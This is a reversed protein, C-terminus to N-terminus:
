VAVVTMASERGAPDVVVYRLTLPLPHSADPAPTGQWALATGDLEIDPGSSVIIGGNWQEWIRLRYSGIARPASPTAPASLAAAATGATAVVSGVAGDLTPIPLPPLHIASAPASVASFARPNDASQSPLVPAVGGAPPLEVVGRALRREPPMRVEAWYSYRIYSALATPDAVEAVFMIAAGDRMIALPGRAIERAYIPDNVLGSARRLRFEPAVSDAAPPDTFLGPESAKLEVLDLGVAEIRVTAVRTAPDVAVHV